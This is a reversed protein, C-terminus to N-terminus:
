CHFTRVAKVYITADEAALREQDQLDSLVEDYKAVTKRLEELTVHSSAAAASWADSIRSIVASTKDSLFANQKKAVKGAPKAISVNHTVM